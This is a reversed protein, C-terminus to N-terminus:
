LILVVAFMLHTLTILYSDNTKCSVLLGMIFLELVVAVM